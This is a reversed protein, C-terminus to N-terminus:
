DLQKNTNFKEAEGKLFEIQEKISEEVMTLFTLINKIKEEHPLSSEHEEVINITKIMVELEKKLMEIM